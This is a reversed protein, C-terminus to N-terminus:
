LPGGAIPAEGSRRGRLRAIFRVSRHIQRPISQAAGAPATPMVSWRSGASEERSGSNAAAWGREPWSRKSTPASGTVPLVLKSALAISTLEPSPVVMLRSGFTALGPSPTILSAPEKRIGVRKRWSSSPPIVVWVTTSTVPETTNPRFPSVMLLREVLKSTSEPPGAPM